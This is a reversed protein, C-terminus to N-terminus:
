EANPTFLAQGYKEVGFAKIVGQGEPGVIWAAFEEGGAQNKAGKVPIVGYPNLLSADGEVLIDLALKDKQALYTGRDSLTYAAKESSVRLAEGMGQGIEEYWAGQPTVAAKKWIDLEKAHTGSKDGRSVFPAQAEAIKKFADPAAATGKIKAPDAAPGVVIFDNYMVDARSVGLGGDMFEQEAKPSHVLLVDADKNKGLELAQGSGVAVVKVRYAPYAKEFAPILVDFLGTDRTSTTSALVLDQAAGVATTETPAPATTTAAAAETTASAPRTTTTEEGGGCGAAALGVAAPLTLVVLLWQWLGKSRNRERM